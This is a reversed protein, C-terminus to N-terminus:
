HVTIAASKSVLYTGVTRIASHPYRPRARSCGSTRTWGGFPDAHDGFRWALNEAGKTCSDPQTIWSEVIHVLGTVTGEDVRRPKEELDGSLSWALSQM